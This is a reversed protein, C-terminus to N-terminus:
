RAFPVGHYLLEHVDAVYMRRHALLPRTKIVARRADQQRISVDWFVCLTRDPNLQSLQEVVRRGFLIMATAKRDDPKVVVDFHPGTVEATPQESREPLQDLVLLEADDDPRLGTM